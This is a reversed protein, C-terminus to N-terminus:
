EGGSRERHSSLAEVFQRSWARPPSPYADTGFRDDSGQFHLVDYPQLTIDLAKLREQDTKGELTKALIILEPLAYRKSLTDISLGKDFDNKFSFLITENEKM